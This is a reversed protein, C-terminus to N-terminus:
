STTSLMRAWKRPSASSVGNRHAPLRRLSRPHDGRAVEDAVRWLEDRRLGVDRLRSGDLGSLAQLTARRWYWRRLSEVGRGLITREHM